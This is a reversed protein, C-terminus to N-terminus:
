DFEAQASDPNLEWRKEDREDLRAKVDVAEGASVNLGAQNGLEDITNQEPDPNINGAVAGKGEYAKNIPQAM